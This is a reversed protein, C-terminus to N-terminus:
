YYTERYLIYIYHTNNGNYDFKDFSLMDLTDNYYDLDYDYTLDQRKESTVKKLVNTNYSKECLLFVREKQRNSFLSYINYTNPTNQCYEIENETMKPNGTTADNVDFWLLEYGECLNSSNYNHTFTSAIVVTDGNYHTMLNYDDYQTINANITGNFIFCTNQISTTSFAFDKPYRRLSINNASDTDFGSTVIYNNTLVIDRFSENPYHNLYGSEYLWGSVGNTYIDVLLNTKKPSSEGICVIHVFGNKAYTVLKKFSTVEDTKTYYFQKLISYQNYTPINNIDFFGVIASKNEYGCFFVSDNRICFDEVYCISDIEIYYINHTGIPDIIAFLHNTTTEIYSIVLQKKYDKVITKTIDSALLDYERISAQGHVM